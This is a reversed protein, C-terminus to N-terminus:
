EAVTLEALTKTCTSIIDSELAIAKVDNGDYNALRETAAQLLSMTQAIAAQRASESADAENTRFADLSLPEDTKDPAKMASQLNAPEGTKRDIVAKPADSQVLRLEGPTPRIRKVTEAPILPEVDGRLPKQDADDPEPAARALSIWVNASLDDRVALEHHHARGTKEIIDILDDEEFEVTRLLPAVREADDLVIHCVLDVPPNPMNALRAVTQDRTAGDVAPLLKSVASLLKKRHLTKEPANKSLFVGVLKIFLDSRDAVTAGEKSMDEASLILEIVRFDLAEM